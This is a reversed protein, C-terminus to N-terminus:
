RMLDSRGSGPVASAPLKLGYHRNLSSYWACISYVIYSCLRYLPCLEISDALAPRTVFHIAFIALTSGYNPLPALMGTESVCLNLGAEVM